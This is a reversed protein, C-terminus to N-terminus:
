AIKWEIYTHECPVAIGDVILDLVTHESIISYKPFDADHDVAFGYFKDMNYKAQETFVPYHGCDMRRFKNDLSKIERATGVIMFGSGDAWEYRKM